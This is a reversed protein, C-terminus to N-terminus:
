SLRAPLLGDLGEVLLALTRLQLQKRVIRLKGVVRTDGTDQHLLNADFARASKAIAIKSQLQPLLQPQLLKKGSMQVLLDGINGPGAHCRHQRDVPQTSWAAFQGDLLVPIRGCCQVIQQMDRFALDVVRPQIATQITEQWPLSLDLLM